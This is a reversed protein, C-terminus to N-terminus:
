ANEILVRIKQVEECLDPATHVSVVLQRVFMASIHDAKREISRLCEEIEKKTKENM